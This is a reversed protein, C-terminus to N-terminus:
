ITLRKYCQGNERKNAAEKPSTVSCYRGSLPRKGFLHLINGRVIFDHQNQIIKVGARPSRQVGCKVRLRRKM